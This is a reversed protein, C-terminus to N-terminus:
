MDGCKARLVDEYEYLPSASRLQLCEPIFIISQHMYAKVSKRISNSCIHKDSNRKDNMICPMEITTSKTKTIAKSGITFYYNSNHIRTVGKMTLFSDLQTEILAQHLQLRLASCRKISLEEVEISKM